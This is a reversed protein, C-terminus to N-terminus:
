AQDSAWALVEGALQRYAKSVDHNPDYKLISQGATSSDKVAVARKIMTNFTKYEDEIVAVAERDHLTRKDYMAILVGVLSMSPNLTRVKGITNTLQVLGRISLFDPSVPAIIGNCSAMANITLLGLSPPCDLLIFDYDNKINSLRNKLISERGIEALLEAEAASLDINSPLIDMNGSTVIANKVDIRGILIDYVTYELAIPELGVALTLSGQPDLDVLLVKHGLDSLAQGLNVTTTTKSVGGKQNAIAIIM